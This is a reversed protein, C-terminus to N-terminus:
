IQDGKNSYQQVIHPLQLNYKFTLYIVVFILYLVIYSASIVLGIEQNNLLKFFQSINYEQYDTTQQKVGLSMYLIGYM